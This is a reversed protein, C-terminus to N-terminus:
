LFSNNIIKVFHFLISSLMQRYVESNCLRTTEIVFQRDWWDTLDTPLISMLNPWHMATVCSAHVRVIWGTSASLVEVSADILENKTVIRRGGDPTM